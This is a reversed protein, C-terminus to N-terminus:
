GEAWQVGLIAMVVVFIVLFVGVISTTAFRGWEGKKNADVFQTYAQFGVGFAVFLSVATAAIRSGSSLFAGLFAFPSSTNTVGTGQTIQEATPLAAYVETTLTMVLLAVSHRISTIIKM